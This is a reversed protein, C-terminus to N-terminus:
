QTFDANFLDMEPLLDGVLELLEKGEEPIELRGSLMNELVKTFEALSNGHSGLGGDLDDAQQGGNCNFLPLQNVIFRILRELLDLAAPKNMLINIM